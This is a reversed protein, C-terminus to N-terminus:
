RGRGAPSHTKSDLIADVSVFRFGAARLRNIMGPLADATPAPWSHLLVIAGDGRKMAQEVIANELPAAQCEDEWDSAAVDWHVNIYGAQALADLVRPDDAGTGFPCRFWPRPDAGTVSRIASEGAAIDASLGADSLDMLPAHSHSHNGVLHGAAVIAQALQPYATVWRGQLFFTAPVRERDLIALMREAVGPPCQRRDPHEADFTLALRRYAGIEPSPNEEGVASRSDVPAPPLM